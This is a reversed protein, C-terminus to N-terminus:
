LIEKDSAPKGGKGVTVVNNRKNSSSPNIPAAPLRALYVPSGDMSRSQWDETVLPRALPGVGQLVGGEPCWLVRPNKNM